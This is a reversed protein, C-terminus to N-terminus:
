VAPDLRPRTGLRHTPLALREIADLYVTVTISRVSEM